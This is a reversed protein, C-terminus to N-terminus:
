NSYTDYSIKKENFRTSAPKEEDPHGIYIVNLPVVWVPLGLVGSLGKVLTKIPHVGCWVAGLGLANAALLLNETAASCDQVWFNEAVLRKVNGLNGCVSIALPSEMKGFPMVQRIKALRQPDRVVVFHWTQMNMANPAAMAAELLDKIMEDSVPQNTFKRISHRKFIFDLKPNM